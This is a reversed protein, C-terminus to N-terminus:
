VKERIKGFCGKGIELQMISFLEPNTYNFTM